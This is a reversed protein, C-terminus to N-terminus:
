PEVDKKGRDATERDGKGGGASKNLEQKAAEKVAARIVTLNADEPATVAFSSGTSSSHSLVSGDESWHSLM